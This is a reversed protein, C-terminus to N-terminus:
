NYESWLDWRITRSDVKWIHWVDTENHSQEKHKHHLTIKRLIGKGHFCISTIDYVYVNVMNLFTQQQRTSCRKLIPRSDKVRHLFSRSKLSMDSEAVTNSDMDDDDIVFRDTHQTLSGAPQESVPRETRVGMVEDSKWEQCSCKEDANWESYSSSYADKVPRGTRLHQETWSSLPLQSEYRTTGLPLCTLIGKADRSWIWWRSRSQQSEKKVQIKKREKRCWKLVIPPVSIASTSFVCFIIGMMVHSTERQWYTQSNTRPTLINSKSRPTWISEKSCGILHLETPESLM